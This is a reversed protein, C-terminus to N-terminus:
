ITNHYKWKYNYASKRRGRCAGSIAGQGNKCTTIGHDILWQYASELSPFTQVYNGAMDYQDIEKFKSLKIGSAKLVKRVTSDHCQMKNAVDRPSYGLNYLDIIERHDYIISGDGGKTANYGNSGYTNLEKIWYIERESLINDDVTELEQIIFNEIGYKRMADYLPRKECREKFADCCHQRFREKINSTTKGIYKKSNILNTICYIHGM